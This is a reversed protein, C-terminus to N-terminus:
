RDTRKTIENHIFISLNKENMFTQALDQLQSKKLKKLILKIKRTDEPGCDDLLNEFVCEVGDMNVNYNNLVEQFLLNSQILFVDHIILPKRVSAIIRIVWDDSDYFVERWFDGEMDNRDNLIKYIEKVATEDHKEEYENLLDVLKDSLINEFEM